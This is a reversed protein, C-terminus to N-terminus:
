QCHSGHGNESADDHDTSYSITASATAATVLTHHDYDDEKKRLGQKAKPPKDATQGMITEKKEVYAETTNETTELDAGCSFGSVKKTWKAFKHIYDQGRSGKTRSGRSHQSERWSITSPQLWFVCRLNQM